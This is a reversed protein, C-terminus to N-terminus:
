KSTIEMGYLLLTAVGALAMDIDESPAKISFEQEEVTKGGVTEIADKVCCQLLYSGEVDMEVSSASIVANRGLGYTIFQNPHNEVKGELGLPLITCAQQRIKNVIKCKYRKSHEKDIETLVDSMVVMMDLPIKEDKDKLLDEKSLMVILIDMHNEKLIHYYKKFSIRKNKYYIHDHPYLIVEVRAGVEKYIDRLHNAIEMKPVKANAIGITMM